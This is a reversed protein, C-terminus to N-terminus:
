LMGPKKLAFSRKKCWQTQLLTYANSKYVYFIYFLLNSIGFTYAKPLVTM